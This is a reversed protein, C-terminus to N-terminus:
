HLPSSSSPMRLQTPVCASPEGALAIDPYASGEPSRVSQSLTGNALANILQIYIRSGGAVDTLTQLYRAILQNFVFLLSRHDTLGPAGGYLSAFRGAAGAATTPRPILAATARSTSILSSLTYNGADLDGSADGIKTNSTFEGAGAENAGIASYFILGSFAQGYWEYLSPSEAPVGPPIVAERNAPNVNTLGANTLLNFPVQTKRILGQLVQNARRSIGELTELSTDSSRGSGRILTDVLNKELWFISGPNSVEEFRRVTEPKLYPRFQEFYFKVDSLLSEVLGRLKSFGIQIGPRAGQIYQVEVLGQGTTSLDFMFEVFDRMILGYNIFARSSLRLARLFRLLGARNNPDAVLSAATTGNKQTFTDSDTKYAAPDPHSSTPPAIRAAM